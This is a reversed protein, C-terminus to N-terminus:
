KEYNTMKAPLFAIIQTTNTISCTGHSLSSLINNTAASQDTPIQGKSGSRDMRSREATVTYSRAMISPEKMPLGKASHSM